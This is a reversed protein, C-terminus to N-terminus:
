EGLSREYIWAEEGDPYYRARRGVKTYSCKEYLRWAAKNSPRVELYIKDAQYLGTASREFFKLLREGLKQGRFKPDVFIYFLEAAGGMERGLALGQWGQSNGHYVLFTRPIKLSIYFESVPWFEGRDWLQSLAELAIKESELGQYVQFEQGENM